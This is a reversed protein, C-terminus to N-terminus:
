RRDYVELNNTPAKPLDFVQRADSHCLWNLRRWIKGRPKMRRLRPADSSRYGVAHATPYFAWNSFNAASRRCMSFWALINRGEPALNELAELGM